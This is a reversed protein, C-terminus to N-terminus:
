HLANPQQVSRGEVIMEKTKGINLSLNCDYCWVVLRYASVNNILVLVTTDDEFKFIHNTQNLPLASM